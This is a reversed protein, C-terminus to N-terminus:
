EDESVVEAKNWLGYYVNGRIVEHHFEVEGEHKDLDVVDWAQDMAEEKSNAEVEVDCYGTYPIRVTYKM